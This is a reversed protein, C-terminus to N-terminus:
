AADKKRLETKLGISARYADEQPRIAWTHDHKYEWTGIHGIKKSLDHDIYLPIQNDRLLKCFYIDEGMYGKAAVDWPTAFWPMEIARFVNTDVMMVGTGVADVQEVGTDHEGTYVPVKRQTEPDYNAATPGVPMRRRPCNAAVVLLDRDLLQKITDQPFRMDSDIFLVVDANNEMASMVLESRQSVLLTGKSINVNVADNPHNAVHFAVANVLDFAFDSHVEDRAPVCVSIIRKKDM